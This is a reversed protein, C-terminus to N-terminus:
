VAPDRVPSVCDPLRHSFQTAFPGGRPDVVSGVSSPDRVASVGNRTFLVTLKVTIQKGWCQCFTSGICLDWMCHVTHIYTGYPPFIRRMSPM